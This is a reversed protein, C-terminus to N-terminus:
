RRCGPSPATASDPWNASGCRPRTPWPCSRWSGTSSTPSARTGSCSATWPAPLAIVVTLLAQWLDQQDDDLWPSQTDMHGDYKGPCGLDSAQAVRRPSSESKGRCTITTERALSPTSKSSPWSRGPGAKGTAHELPSMLRIPGRCGRRSGCWLVRRRRLVPWHRSRWRGCPAPCSSGTPAASGLAGIRKVTRGSRGMRPRRRCWYM